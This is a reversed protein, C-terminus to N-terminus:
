LEGVIKGNGEEEEEEQNALYSFVEGRVKGVEISTTMITIEVTESQCESVNGFELLWVEVDLCLAPRVMNSNSPQSQGLNGRGMRVSQHHRRGSRGVEWKESIGSIELESVHFIDNRIISIIIM